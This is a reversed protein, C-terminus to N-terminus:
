FPLRSTNYLTAHHFCLERTLFPGFCFVDTFLCLGDPMMIHFSFVPVFAWEHVAYFSHLGRHCSSIRLKIMHHLKHHVAKKLGTSRELLLLQSQHRPKSVMSCPVVVVAYDVHAAVDDVVISGEPTWQWRISFSGNRRARVVYPLRSLIKRNGLSWLYVTGARWPRCTSLNYM